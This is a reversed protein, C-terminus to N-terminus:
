MMGDVKFTVSTFRDWYAPGNLGVATPPPLTADAEVADGFSTPLETQFDGSECGTLLALLAIAHM